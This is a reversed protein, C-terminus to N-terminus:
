IAWVYAEKCHQLMGSMPHHILLLAFASFCEPYTENTNGHLAIGIMDLLVEPTIAICILGEHFKCSDSIVQPNWDSDYIIVTDAATLTIGQGGARTSLLFIFTNADGAISLPVAFQLNCSSLM